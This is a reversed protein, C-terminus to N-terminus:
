LCVVAKVSISPRGGTDYPSSSSSTIKPSPRIDSAMPDFSMSYCRTADLREPVFYIGMLRSLCVPPALGIGSVAVFSPLPCTVSSAAESAKRQSISTGPDRQETRQEDAGTNWYKTSISFSRGPCVSNTNNKGDKNGLPSSVNTRREGVWDDSGSSPVEDPSRGLVLANTSQLDSVM